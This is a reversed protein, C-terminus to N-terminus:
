IFLYYFCSCLEKFVFFICFVIFMFCVFNFNFNSNFFFFYFTSFFLFLFYFFLELSVKSFFNFLSYFLLFFGTLDSKLSSLGRIEQLFDSFDLSGFKLFHWLHGNKCWKPCTIGLKPWIYIKEFVDSCWRLHTM